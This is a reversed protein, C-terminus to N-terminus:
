EEGREPYIVVAEGSVVVEDLRTILTKLWAKRKEKEVKVVEVSVILHEDVYVPKIFTTAQKAYITGDGPFHCGLIASFLSNLLAGHVVCRKFPTTQAYAEDTHLPNTDGSLKSFNMLDEKTFKREIFFSDKVKM